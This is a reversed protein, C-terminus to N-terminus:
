LKLIVGFFGIFMYNRDKNSESRLCYYYSSFVLNKRIFYPKAVGEVFKDKGLVEDGTDQNLEYYSLYRHHIEKEYQSLSPNFAFAILLTVIIVGISFKGKNRFQERVYKRRITSNYRVGSGEPSTTFIALCLFCMYIIIGPHIILAIDELFKMTLLDNMTIFPINVGVQNEITKIDPIKTIKVIPDSGIFITMLIIAFTMCMVILIMVVYIAQIDKKHNYMWRKLMKIIKSM